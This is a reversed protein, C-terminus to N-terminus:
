SAILGLFFLLIQLSGNIMYIATCILLTAFFVLLMSFISLALAQSATVNLHSIDLFRQVRIRDKEAIKLHIINGLSNAWKEYSTLKPIMDAKFQEYDSSNKSETSIKSEIINSYKNLIERTDM